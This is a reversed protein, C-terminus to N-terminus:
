ITTFYLEREVAAKDAAAQYRNWDELKADCYNELTKAPLINGVFQSNRALAVAEKLNEPLMPLGQLDGANYLNLDVAAPLPLERRIGDLGAYLLMAFALHPNCSPDPSRLEM